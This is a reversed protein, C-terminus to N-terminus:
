VAAVVFNVNLDKCVKDLKAKLDGKYSNVIVKFFTGFYGNPVMYGM